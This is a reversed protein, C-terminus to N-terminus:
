QPRAWNGQLQPGYNRNIYQNVHYDVIYKLGKGPAIKGGFYKFLQFSVEADKAAYEIQEDSLSPAEWDMTEEWEESGFVTKNLSVGLYDESMKSLKGPRCGAAEALFRLDITNAVRVQYDDYVHKADKYPAVGVKVINGDELIEQLFISCNLYQIM